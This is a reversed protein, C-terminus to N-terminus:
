FLSQLHLMMEFAEMRDCQKQLEPSMTALMICCVDESDKTFQEFEDLMEQPADDAPQELPEDIVFTKREQRLFIRLNREWDLFNKGTLKNNDLIFRLNLKSEQAM